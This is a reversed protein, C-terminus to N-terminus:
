APAVQATGNRESRSMRTELAQQLNRHEHLLHKHAERLDALEAALVAADRPERSAHVANRERLVEVQERMEHLQLRLAAKTVKPKKEVKTKEAKGKSM